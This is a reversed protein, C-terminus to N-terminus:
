WSRNSSRPWGGICNSWSAPARRSSGKSVSGVKLGFNKLTDLLKSQLPKRSILLMRREQNQLTKVQVPRYLNVRMMHAIGGADNHDTKNTQVSLPAKVHRAEICIM